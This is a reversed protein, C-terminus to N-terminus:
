NVITQDPYHSAAMEDQSHRSDQDYIDRAASCQEDRFGEAETRLTRHHLLPLRAVGFRIFKRFLELRGKVGGGRMKPFDYQLKKRFEHVFYRRYHCFDTIYIKPNFIVGEGGGKPSKRFNM